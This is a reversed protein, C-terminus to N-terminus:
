PEVAQLLEACFGPVRSLLDRLGPELALLLGFDEKLDKDAELFASRAADRMAAFRRRVEDLSGSVSGPPVGPESAESYRLFADILPAVVRKVEPPDLLVRLNASTWTLLGDAMQALPAPNLLAQEMAYLRLDTEQWLGHEMLRRRLTDGLDIAADRVAADAFLRHFGRLPFERSTDFLAADLLPLERMLLATLGAHAFAAEDPDGTAIRRGADAAADRCRACAEAQPPLLAPSSPDAAELVGRLLVPLPVPFAPGPSPITDLWAAGHVQLRHLADHLGKLAGFRALATAAARLEARVACIRRFVAVDGVGSTSPKPPLCRALAALGAQVRDAQAGLRRPPRLLAPVSAAVDRRVPEAAWTQEILRLVFSLSFYPSETAIEKVCRAVIEEMTPNGTPVTSSAELAGPYRALAQDVDARTCHARAIRRLSEVQEGTLALTM